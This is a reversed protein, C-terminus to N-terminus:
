RHRNALSRMHGRSEGDCSPYPRQRLLVWQTSDCRSQSANRPLCIRRCSTSRSETRHLVRSPRRQHWKHKYMPHSVHLHLKEHKWGCFGNTSINVPGRLNNGREPREIKMNEALFWQGCSKIIGLANEAGYLGSSGLGDEKCYTMHQAVRRVVKKEVLKNYLVCYNSVDNIYIVRLGNSPPMESMGVDPLKKDSMERKSEYRVEDESYPSNASM